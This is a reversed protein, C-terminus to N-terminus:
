RKKTKKSKKSKLKEPKNKSLGWIYMFDSYFPISKINFVKVAAIWVIFVYAVSVFYWFIVHLTDFFLFNNVKLVSLLIIRAINLLLFLSSTFVFIGIRKRLRIGSTIFNLLLLLYYASGGVCAKSIEIVVAKLFIFNQMIQIDYFISLFFASPYLTLPTFVQYFIALNSISAIFIILYRLPIDYPKQKEKKEKEVM